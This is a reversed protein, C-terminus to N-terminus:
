RSKDYNQTNYRRVSKNFTPQQIKQYKGKAIRSEFKLSDNKPYHQRQYNPYEKMM